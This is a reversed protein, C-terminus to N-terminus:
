FNFNSHNANHMAKEFMYPHKVVARSLSDDDSIFINLVAIGHNWVTKVCELIGQPEM